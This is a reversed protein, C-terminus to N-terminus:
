KYHKLLLQQIKLKCLLSSQRRGTTGSPLHVKLTTTTGSCQRATRCSSSTCIVSKVETQLSRQPLWSTSRTWLTTTTPVPIMTSKYQDTPNDVQLKDYTLDEISVFAGEKLSRDGTFVQANNGNATYMATDKMHDAEDRDYPTGSTGGYGNFGNFDAIAVQIDLMQKDDYFIDVGAFAEKGFRTEYIIRQRPGFSVAVVEVDPERLLSHYLYFCHGNEWGMIGIKIKAM